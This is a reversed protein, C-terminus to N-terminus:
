RIEYQKILKTYNKFDQMDIKLYDNKKTELNNNSKIIINYFNSFINTWWLYLKKTYKKSLVKKENISNELNRLSYKAYIASFDNYRFNYGLDVFEWDKKCNNKYLRTKQDLNINNTVIMWWEWWKVMKNTDFSFVWFDWFTWIYKDWIKAWISQCCDEIVYINKKRCFNVLEITNEIPYWYLHILIIAKTKSSIKAKIDVLSLSNICHWLDIFIPKAWIIKVSNPDSIFYNCNIMVEDWKKIWLAKLTLILWSSWSSCASAYDVWFYQKFDEELEFIKCWVELPYKNIFEYSERLYAKKDQPNIM